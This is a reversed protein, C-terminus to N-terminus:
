FRLLLGLRGYGAPSPNEGLDQGAIRVQQAPTTCLGAGLRVHLADVVRVAVGVELELSNYARTAAERSLSENEAAIVRWRERLLGGRADLLWGDAPVVVVVLGGGGSLWRSRAEVADSESGLWSGSAFLGIPIGRVLVTVGGDAGTRVHDIGSGIRGAVEVHVVFPAASREENAAPAVPAARSPAPAAREASVPPPEEADPSAPPAPPGGVALVGVTMGLSRAREAPADVEAFLIQRSWWQGDRLVEVRYANALNGPAIRAEAETVAAAVCRRPTAAETCAALVEPQHTALDEAVYVPIPVPVLRDRIV